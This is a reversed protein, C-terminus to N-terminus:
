TKRPKVHRSRRWCRGTGSLCCAGVAYPWSIVYSKGAEIATCQAMALQQTNEAIQVVCKVLGCMWSRCCVSLVQSSCEQKIRDLAQSHTAAQDALQGESLALAEHVQCLEASLESLLAEHAELQAAHTELQVMWWDTM